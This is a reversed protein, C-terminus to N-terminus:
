VGAVKGFAERLNRFGNRLIGYDGGVNLFRAGQDLYRRASDTDGVPIGWWINNKEAAAAILRVAERFGPHDFQLPIGMSFSLDGPGVFLIDVGPVSAIEDVHELAEVDEIQIAVFTERNAHRTFEVPDSFGLDADVMMTELGRRGVPPFKANYVVWEAEERTKIHPVMIGAAGDELPRFFSTYGEGKRIRVFCDIDTLHGAMIMSSVQWQNVPRHETDIWIGDFGSRGALQIALPSPGLSVNITLATKGARLKELVKSRRM